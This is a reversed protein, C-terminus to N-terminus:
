LQVVDTLTAVIADALREAYTAGPERAVLVGAGDSIEVLAPSDSHLVPTGLAFAELMSLGFGEVASPLVYAAARGLVVALEGDSLTSLLHVRGEPLGSREVLADLAESPSGVLVLPIDPVGPLALADLLADLRKRPQASAMAVLYASPLGLRLAVAEPAAPLALSPAGGIVRIRDGFDLHESLEAAVAHTPVVVADAHNRARKAMTRTWAARDDATEPNWATTDHLTVATQDEPRQERSHRRLPALLTPSHVLGHLPATTLGRQWAAYLERRGLTTTHLGALGPIRAHLQAAEEASCSAAIGEVECDAPATAILARALEETYRVVGRPRGEVATDVVLRLTVM